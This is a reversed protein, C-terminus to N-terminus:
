LRGLRRYRNFEAKRLPPMTEKRIELCNGCLIKQSTNLGWFKPDNRNRIIGHHGASDITQECIQCYTWGNGHNDTYTIRPKLSAQCKCDKLKTQIRKLSNTFLLYIEQSEKELCDCNNLHNKDARWQRACNANVPLCLFIELWESLNIQWYKKYWKQQKTFSIPGSAGGAKKLLCPQCVLKNEQYLSYADVELSGCTECGLYNKLLQLQQFRDRQEQKKSTFIKEYSSYEQSKEKQREYFCSCCFEPHLLSCNKIQKCALCYTSKFLHNM